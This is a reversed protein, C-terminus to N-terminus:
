LEINCFPTGRRWEALLLLSPCFCFQRNCRLPPLLEISRFLAPRVCPLADVRVFEFVCTVMAWPWFWLLHDWAMFYHMFYYCAFEEVATALRCSTSSLCNCLCPPSRPATGQREGWEVVAGDHRLWRHLQAPSVWLPRLCSFTPYEPSSLTLFLFCIKSM